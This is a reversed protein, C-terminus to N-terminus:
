RNSALCPPFSAKRRAKQQKIRAYEAKKQLREKEVLKKKRKKKEKTIKMKHKTYHTRMHPIQGELIIM